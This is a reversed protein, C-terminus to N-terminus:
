LSFGKKIIGSLQYNNGIKLFGTFPEDNNESYKIADEFSIRKGIALGNDMGGSVYIFDTPTLICIFELTVFDDSDYVNFNVMDYVKPETGDKYKFPFM